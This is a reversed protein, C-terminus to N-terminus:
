SLVGGQELWLNMLGAPKDQRKKPEQTFHYNTNDPFETTYVHNCGSCISHDRPFVRTKYKCTNCFKKMGAFSGSSALCLCAIFKEDDHTYLSILCVKCTNINVSLTGQIKRLQEIHKKRIEIDDM